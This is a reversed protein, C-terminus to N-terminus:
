RRTMEFEVTAAGSLDIPGKSLDDFGAKTIYVFADTPLNCLFIAGGRDSRTTALALEFDNQVWVSAGPVPRRGEPTAEFILGNVVPGTAAIPRPAAPGDFRTTAIMEVNVVRDETVDATVACPQVFGDKVALITIRSDPINPATFHGVTNSMLRGNAWWYSYGFRPQEVWLNVDVGGIRGAQADFIDGQVTHPGSVPAPFPAPSPTVVPLSATSPALPPMTPESGCGSLSVAVLLGAIRRV